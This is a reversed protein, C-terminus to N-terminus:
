ASRALHTTITFALTPDNRKRERKGGCDLHQPMYLDAARPHCCLKYPRIGDGVPRLPRVEQAHEPARIPTPIAAQLQAVEEGKDHVKAVLTQRWTFQTSGMWDCFHPCVPGARWLRVLDGSAVERPPTEALCLALVGLISLWYVEM